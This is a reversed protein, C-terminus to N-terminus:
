LGDPSSRAPFMEVLSVSGHLHIAVLAAVDLVAAAVAADAATSQTAAAAKGNRHASAAAAQELAAEAQHGEDDDRHDHAGIRAGDQAINGAAPAAGRTVRRRWGRGRGAARRARGRGGAVGLGLEDRAHQLAGLIDPVLDELPHAALIAIGLQDQEAVGRAGLAADALRRHPREITRGVLPDIEVEAEEVLQRAAELRGALERLGINDGVLDAM